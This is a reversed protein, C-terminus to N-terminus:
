DAIEQKAMECFIGCQIEPETQYDGTGPQLEDLFIRTDGTKIIKVGLRRSEYVMRAFQDPFDDRIKNWYGMGSAKCCGICNNHQYGLKYMSPLEIGASEVIALCDPHELGRDILPSFADINNADLFSDWRGQEEACYGFVHRDTPLEFARRVEKKLLLTCPAGDHGSIYRRKRFVEYISGDYKEAILNTIPVGLWKECDAAFRDNDPHEERVICRAVVVPLRGANEVIALKTAVASAAGCSFWCVLRSVRCDLPVAELQAKPENTESM